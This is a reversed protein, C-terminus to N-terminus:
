KSNKENWFEWSRLGHKVREFEMEDAFNQTVEEWTKGCLEVANKMFRKMEKDSIPKSNTNNKFMKKEM